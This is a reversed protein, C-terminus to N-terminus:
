LGDLCQEEYNCNCHDYRSDNYEQIGGEPKSNLQCKITIEM